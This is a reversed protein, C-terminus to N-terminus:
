SRKQLGDTRRIVSQRVREQLQVVPKNEEKEVERFKKKRENMIVRIKEGKKVIIRKRIGNKEQDINRFHVIYLM